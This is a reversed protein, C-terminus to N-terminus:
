DTVTRLSEVDVGKKNIILHHNNLPKFEIEVVIVLM